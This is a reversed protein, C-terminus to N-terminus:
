RNKPMSIKSFKRTMSIKSFTSKIARTRYIQEQAEFWFKIALKIIKWSFLNGNHIKAWHAITHYMSKNDKSYPQKINALHGHNRTKFRCRKRGICLPQLPTVFVAQDDSCISTFKLKKSVKPYIKILLTKKECNWIM